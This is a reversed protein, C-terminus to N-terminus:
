SGGRIIIEGVSKDDVLVSATGAGIDPCRVMFNKGDVYAPKTVSGVTVYVSRFDSPDAGSISIWQGSRAVKTILEM